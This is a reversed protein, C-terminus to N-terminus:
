ENEVYKTFQKSQSLGGRASNFKEAIEPEVRVTIAVKPVTLRKRGSGKRKGGATM